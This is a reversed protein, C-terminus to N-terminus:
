TNKFDDYLSLDINDLNFIYNEIQVIFKRLMLSTPKFKM